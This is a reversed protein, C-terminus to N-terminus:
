EVVVLRSRKEELVSLLKRLRRLENTAGEDHSESNLKTELKSIHRTVEQIRSAIHVPDNRLRLRARLKEMFQAKMTKDIHSRYNYLMKKELKKRHQCSGQVGRSEKRKAM